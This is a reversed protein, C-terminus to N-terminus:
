KIGPTSKFLKLCTMNSDVINELIVYVTIGILNCFFGYSKVNFILKPVKNHTSVTSLKPAISIKM